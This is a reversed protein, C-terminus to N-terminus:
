EIIRMLRMVTARFAVGQRKAQALNFVMRPRGSLLEFGLIAGERVYSDLVAITIVPSGQLERAILATETQLGPTLYVAFLQRRKIEAVLAAANSWTILSEEHSLGAIKAIRGLGAMLESGFHSSEVSGSKVVIGIRMPGAVQPSPAQAYEILKATLEVHLQLPVGPEEAHASYMPISLAVAILPFVKSAKRSRTM